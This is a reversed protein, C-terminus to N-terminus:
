LAVLLRYVIFQGADAPTGNERAVGDEPSMVADDSVDDALRNRKEGSMNDEIPLEDASATTGSQRIVGHVAADLSEAIRVTWQADPRM